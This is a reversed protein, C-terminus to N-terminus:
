RFVITSAGNLIRRELHDRVARTLVHGEVDRGAARDDPMMTHNARELDQELGDDLDTTVCDATAGTIEM